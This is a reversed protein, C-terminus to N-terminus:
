RPQRKTMEEVKALIGDLWEEPKEFGVHENRLISSDVLWNRPISLEPLAQEIYGHALLVPFTYGKQKIFPEVVGPNADVNLSLVVVGPRDKLRDYLKQLSPLEQVCPTCWTAWLNLIAVKGALDAETWNKGSLDSARLPPLPREPKTWDASGEAVQIPYVRRESATVRYNNADEKRGEVDALRAMMEWYKSDLFRAYGPQTTVVKLRDLEPRMKALAQHAKQLNSIKLAWDFVVNYAEIRGDHRAEADLRQNRDDFLDSEMRRPQTEVERLGTEIMAPISDLRTGRDVYLQAVSIVAPTTLFRGPRKRNIALLAHEAAVLDADTTEPLKSLGVFREYYPMPEDPWKAVWAKAAEALSRNRREKEEKPASPKLSPNEKNWQRLAEYVPDRTPKPDPLDKLAATNGSLGYGERFTTITARDKMPDISKKLLEIDEAVRARLAPHEAPPAARFEMTWLSRYAEVAARDTRGMLLSRLTEAAQKLDDGDGAARLLQYTPLYSPCAKQFRFVNSALAKGDGFKPYSHVEGIILYPYPFDASALATLRQLAERTNTGILSVAYFMRYRLDGPHSEMASRYGAIIDDHGKERLLALYQLNAYMDDPHERVVAQMTERARYSFDDASAERRLDNVRHIAALAEPSADCGYRAEQALAFSSLLVLALFRLPAEMKNKHRSEARRRAHLTHFWREVGGWAM